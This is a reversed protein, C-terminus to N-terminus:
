NYVLPIISGIDIIKKNSLIVPKKGYKKLFVNIDLFNPHHQYEGTFALQIDSIFGTAGGIFGYDLGPLDIYGSNIFLTDISYKNCEKYISPDSTIIANDSVICTSCKSYGQKVNIFEIGLKELYYKLKEDTYKFNHIAYRSVRAVNYAINEPYNRKLKREGKILKLHTNKLMDKYYDYVNPAIILTQYDIPHIVIDPHYSIADYVEECKVTKIVHIDLETLTNIVKESVSGDIIVAKAKQIPIFPNKRM